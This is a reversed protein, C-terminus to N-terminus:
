ISLRMPSSFIRVYGQKGSANLMSFMLADWMAELTEDALVNLFLQPLWPGIFLSVNLALEELHKAM